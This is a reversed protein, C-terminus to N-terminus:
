SPAGGEPRPGAAPRRELELELEELRRHAVAVGEALRAQSGAMEHLLQRAVQNFRNQRLLVPRAWWKFFLHFSAKRVFVLARGVVPRPSVAAPESWM